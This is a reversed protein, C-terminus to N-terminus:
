ETASAAKEAKDALLLLEKALARVEEPSSTHYCYNESGDCFEIEGTEHVEVDFIGATVFKSMAPFEQKLTEVVDTKTDFNDLEYTNFVSKTM